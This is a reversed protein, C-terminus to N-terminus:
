RTLGEESALEEASKKYEFFRVSSKKFVFEAHGTPGSRQKLVLLDTRTSHKSWSIQEQANEETVPVPWLAAVMDADQEIQGSERLDALTPKQNKSQAANRNLQACAIVPVDLEKAMQKIGRSVSAVEQERSYNGHRGEEGKALQLYDVVILKIGHMLKAQRAKSRVQNMTLAPREDIFMPVGKLENIEASLDPIELEEAYGTRWMQMDADAEAFLVRRALELASMELSFVLVPSGSLASFAAINMGIATKGEGPRGCFVLMEGGRMGGIMKDFYEYGTSLGTLQASGRKYEEIQTQITPLLDGLKHLERGVPDSNIAMLEAEAEQLLKKTDGGEGLKEYFKTFLAGAKRALQANQAAELYYSLNAASPVQEQLHHIMLIWGNEPVNVDTREKLVMTVQLDDITTGQELIQLLAQWIARFHESTFLDIADSGLADHVEFVRIHPELLCCGLVGIEAEKNEITEVIKM